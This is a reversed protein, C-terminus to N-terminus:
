ARSGSLMQAIERRTCHRSRVLFRAEGPHLDRYRIIRRDGPQKLGHERNREPQDEHNRVVEAIDDPKRVAYEFRLWVGDVLRCVTNADLWVQDVSKERLRFTIRPGKRLLGSVPHVYLGYVPGALRFRGPCAMVTKGDLWTDVIVFDKLHQLIHLGTAKRSDLNACIEAYVKSWPRGVNAELYRRRPSLNENLSKGDNPPKPKPHPDIYTDDDLRSPSLSLASNLNPM